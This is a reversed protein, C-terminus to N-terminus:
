YFDFDSSCDITCYGNSTESCQESICVLDLFNSLWKSDEDIAHHIQYESVILVKTVSGAHLNLNWNIDLFNM